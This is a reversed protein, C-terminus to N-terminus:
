SFQEANAQDVEAILSAARVIGSCDKALPVKAEEFKRNISIYSQYVGREAATNDADVKEIEGAVETIKMSTAFDVAVQESSSLQEGSM